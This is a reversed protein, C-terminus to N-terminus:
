HPLDEPPLEIHGKWGDSPKFRHVPSVYPLPRNYAPDSSRLVIRSLDGNFNSFPYRGSLDFNALLPIRKWDLGMLSACTVDVAIPDTGAVILGSKVPSPRLPGEGEGGIIGDVIALYGRQPQERLVGSSDAYFLARNLDHVMRWVTDNGYWDGDTIAVLPDQGHIRTHITRILRGIPKAGGWILRGMQRVPLSLRSRM